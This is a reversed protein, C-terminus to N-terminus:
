TVALDADRGQYQISALSFMDYPLTLLLERRRSCECDDFCSYGIDAAARGM